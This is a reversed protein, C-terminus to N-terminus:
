GDEEETDEEPRGCMLDCLEEETLDKFEKGMNAQRGKRVLSRGRVCRWLARCDECNEKGCAVIQPYEKTRREEDEQLPAEPMNNIISLVDRWKTITNENLAKNIEDLTDLRDILSRKPPPLFMEAEQEKNFEVLKKGCDVGLAFGLLVFLLLILYIGWM